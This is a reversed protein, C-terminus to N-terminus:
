KIFILRSFHWSNEAINQWPALDHIVKVQPANAQLSGELGGEKV